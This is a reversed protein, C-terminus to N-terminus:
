CVGGGEGFRRLKDSLEDMVQGAEHNAYGNSALRMMM